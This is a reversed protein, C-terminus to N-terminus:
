PLVAHQRRPFQAVRDREPRARVVLRRKGSLAAADAGCQMAPVGTAFYGSPRPTAPAAASAGSPAHLIRANTTRKTTGTSIPIADSRSNRSVVRAVSAAVSAAGATIYKHRCVNSGVPVQFQSAVSSTDGSTMASASALTRNQKPRGGLRPLCGPQLTRGPALGVSFDSTRQNKADWKESFISAHLSPPPLSPTLPAIGCPKAQMGVPVVGRFCPTIGRGTTLSQPHPAIAPCG